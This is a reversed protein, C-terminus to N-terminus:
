TRHRDHQMRTPYASASSRMRPSPLLHSALSARMPTVDGEIPKANWELDTLTRSGVYKPMSNMTEAFPGKEHEMDPWAAAFGAYTVRDLVLRAPLRISKLM